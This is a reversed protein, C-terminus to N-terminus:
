RAGGRVGAPHQGTETEASRPQSNGRHSWLVSAPPRPRRSRSFRPYGGRREFDQVSPRSSGEGAAAISCGPPSVPQDGILPKRAPHDLGILRNACTNSMSGNSM